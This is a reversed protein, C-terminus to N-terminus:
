SSAALEKFLGGMCLSAHAVSQEVPEGWATRFLLPRQIAKNLFNVIENAAYLDLDIQNAVWGIFPVGSDLISQAALLAHNICGLKIGVVLLVPLKLSLALDAVFLEESLPVQWGGVGEVVVVEAKTACRKYAENIRDFSIPIKAEASAIHPSCPPEFSYVARDKVPMKISSAALLIADDENIGQSVGTAIPKMGCASYGEAIAARVIVASIYTKGCGTDTGTVFVSM